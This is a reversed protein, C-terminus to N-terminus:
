QCGWVDQRHPRFLLPPFREPSTLKEQLACKGAAAIEKRWAYGFWPCSVSVPFPRSRASLALNVGDSDDVRSRGVIRMCDDEDIEGLADTQHTRNDPHSRLVHLDSHPNAGFDLTIAGFGDQQELRGLM